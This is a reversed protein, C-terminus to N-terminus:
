RLLRLASTLERVNPLRELEGLMALVEDRQAKGLIGECCESFKQAVDAWNAPQESWGRAHSRAHKFTRGDKLRVTLRMEGWNVGNEGWQGRHHALDAPVLVEVRQMLPQVDGRDIREQTYQALGAQRDILAVAVSWPLCYRARYPDPAERYCANALAQPTCELVIREVAAAQLDHAATLELVADITSAPATSGPHFCVITTDKALEWEQGLAATMRELDYNGAGCFAEAMGFREHGGVSSEGAEIIDPDVEFGNAALQAAFIGNRIGHGIHFAKGMSGVNKRLAQAQSAAIGLAMRTRKNDLRLVRCSAAAVGMAGVIGNPHWGRDFLAPRMGRALRADVEFGVVFAELLERGSVGLEEGIALTGPVLVVSVHTVGKTFDDYEQSHAAIGNVFGALPASTRESHAIVSAHPNGGLHRVTDLAIRTSDERSGAVTIGITDLFRLKASAILAGEFTIAPTELAFRALQETVGM